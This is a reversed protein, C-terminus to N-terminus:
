EVMKISFGKEQLAWLRKGYKEWEDPYMIIDHRDAKQSHMLRGTRQLEQQRSGFLFDVEIIRELNDISVGLDGVRSVVFVKNELMTELRNNTEGHIHPVGLRDAIKKGLDISDCFVMTKQSPDIIDETYVSKQKTKPIRHVFIPHYKRKMDKMYEQWNLGIPFGTLAFIYRERGDERHPSASLGIRYKTDLTSLRSFTNAPLRQCEDYVTLAYKGKQINKGQYTSIMIENKIHPLYKNILMEWQEVLTRTPVIVVKDGKIIDFLHLSIFTKGAGTPHFIGVAGTRMFEDVAKKQYDRLVIKSRGERIDEKAVPRAKFPLHGNKIIEAIVDFSHGRKIRATTDGITSIHQSLRKKVSERDKSSFNITDGVVDIEFEKKFDIEDLLDKPADSLWASYQDFQYIYFTETEKYLWGVQFDKIFKPVAVFVSNKKDPVVVYPKKFFKILTKEDAINSSKGLSKVAEKINREDKKEKAIVIDIESMKLQASEIIDALEKKSKELDNNM